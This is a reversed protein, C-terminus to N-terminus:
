WGATALGRGIELSGGTGMEACLRSANKGFTCKKKRMRKKSKGVYCTKYIDFSLVIM